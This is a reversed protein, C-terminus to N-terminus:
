YSELGYDYNPHISVSQIEGLSEVRELISAFTADNTVKLSISVQKGNVKPQSPISPGQVKQADAGM